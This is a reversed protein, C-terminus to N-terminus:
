GSPLSGDANVVCGTLMRIGGRVKERRNIEFLIPGIGVPHHKIVDAFERCTMKIMRANAFQVLREATDVKDLLEYKPLKGNARRM